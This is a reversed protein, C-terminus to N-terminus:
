FIIRSTSTMRMDRSKRLDRTINIRKLWRDTGDYRAKYNFVKRGHVARYNDIFCIEGANLELDILAANMATNFAQIVVEAEEDLADMYVACDVCIYPATPNGFLIAMPMPKTNMQHIKKDSYRLFKEFDHESLETVKAVRHKEFQSADPRIVFRPQFLIKIQEATLQSLVKNSAVRTASQNKNRLCMMGLYDGRYPHFADETHFFLEEESSSGTQGYEQGKVPSIDHVIHGAQQTSWGVTEGLLSGLLVLFIQEELTKTTDNKSGRDLPTLGIKKENIPYGSIVCVVADDAEKLRFNNIFRRVRVPLDHAFITSDHLFEPEEPSTFHEVLNGLLAQIQQVEEKTLTLQSIMKQGM